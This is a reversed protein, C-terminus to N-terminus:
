YVHCFGDRKPKMSARFIHLINERTGEFFRDGSFVSVSQTNVKWKKIIFNVLVCLNCFQWTCFPKPLSCIKDNFLSSLFKSRWSCDKYKLILKFCQWFNFMKNGPKYVLKICFITELNKSLHFVFWFEPLCVLIRVFLGFQRCVVRNSLFCFLQNSDRSARAWSM